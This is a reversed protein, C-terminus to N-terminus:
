HCVGAPVRERLDEAMDSDVSTLPLSLSGHGETRYRARPDEESSCRDDPQHQPQVAAQTLRIQEAQRRRQRYCRRQEHAAIGALAHEHPEGRSPLRPAPSVHNSARHAHKARHENWAAAQQHGEGERHAWRRGREARALRKESPPIPSVARAWATGM